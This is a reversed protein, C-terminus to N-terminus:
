PFGMPHSPIPCFFIDWPCAQIYYMCKDNTLNVHKAKFLLLNQTAQNKKSSVKTSICADAKKHRKSSGKEWPAQTIKGIKISEISNKSFFTNYVRLFIKKTTFMLILEVKKNPM